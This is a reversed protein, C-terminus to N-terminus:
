KEIRETTKVAGHRHREIITQEGTEEKFFPKGCKLLVEYKKDGDSILRNGCEMSDAFSMSTFFVISLILIIYISFLKM